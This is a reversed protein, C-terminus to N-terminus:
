PWRFATATRTCASPRSPEITEGQRLRDLLTLEEALREAPFLRALPQGLM